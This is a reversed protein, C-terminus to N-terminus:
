VFVTLHSYVWTVEVAALVLVSIIALQFFANRLTLSKSLLYYSGLDGVTSSLCGALFSLFGMVLFPHVLQYETLLSWLTLITVAGLGLYTSLFRKLGPVREILPYVAPVVLTSLFLTSFKVFMDPNGFDTPLLVIWALFSFRRFAPGWWHSGEGLLSGLNMSDVRHSILGVVLSIIGAVATVFIIMASFFEFGAWGFYVIKYVEGFAIVIGIPAAVAAMLTFLVSAWLNSRLASHFERTVPRHGSALAM